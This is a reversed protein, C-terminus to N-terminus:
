AWVRSITGPKKKKVNSESFQKFLIFFFRLISSFCPPFLDNKSINIARGWLLDFHRGRQCCTLCGKSFFFRGGVTALELLHFWRKPTVTSLLGGPVACAYARLVAQYAVLAGPIACNKRPPRQAFRRTHCLLAPHPVLLAPHPVLVAPYAYKPVLTEM